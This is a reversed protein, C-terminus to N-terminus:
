SGRPELRDLIRHVFDDASGPDRLDFTGRAMEVDFWLVKGNRDVLAINLFSDGGTSGTGLIANFTNVVARGGSSIEDHGYALVLLDVGAQDLIRSVPGISYDFNRVKEPFVPYVYTARVISPGVDGYLLRAEELEDRTQGTPQLLKVKWGKAVLARHLADGISKRGQTSWDDKLVLQGGATYEYVKVVPPALGVTRVARATKAFGPRARYHKYEGMGVCGSAGLVLLALGAARSRLRDPALREM